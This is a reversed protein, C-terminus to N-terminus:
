YQRWKHKCKVCIYFTTPPEDASRTQMLYYYAEDCKCKPCEIKIKPLTEVENEDVMNVEKKSSSESSIDVDESSKWGCRPCVFGNEGPVLISGCKLCFMSM